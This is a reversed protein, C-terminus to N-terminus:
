VESRPHKPPAPQGNKGIFPVGKRWLRFAQLHIRLWVAFTLSSCALVIRLWNASSSPRAEGRMWAIFSPAGGDPSYEIRVAFHQGGTQLFRFGYQGEIRYFPSVQLAKTAQGILVGSNHNPDARLCYDHHGGFTNNVEVWAALLRGETDEALYFSVPNFVYGLVAPLTHLRIRAVGHIDHEALRECLWPFLASGDRPGHRKRQWAIGPALPLHEVDCEPLALALWAHPYRFSHAVPTKRGHWVHGAFLQTHKM